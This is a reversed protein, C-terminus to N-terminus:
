RERLAGRLRDKLPRVLYDLVTREGTPMVVDAPMGATLHERVEDPVDEAIVQALFYPQKTAEDFLRDRSVTEVHGMILPLVNARFAPFRVEAAMGQSLRETDAPSVRAQIILSDHDPVVEVFPEGAKIVGGVTFVHLNQLTGTVPAVVDVRNLVDTAVNLKSRLDSIKSRVELIQGSVEEWFKQRTQRIQVGAESIGNEAKAQDATSRGIVGELRAKERQLAMYRSKQVLQRDLLSQVDALEEKIYDLQHNTADREQKLGTIEQKYQTIKSELLDIQGRLSARREQFQKTQDAIAEAVIRESRRKELEDPFAIHDSNDLEAHLRSEQALAFDLQNRQLEYSAKAQIPDIRFLVQGQEVHQGERVLIERVIGGELHQVTRKNSENAVVGAATVASDIKALASWGGLGLFTVIIIAYGLAAPQRWDPVATTHEDTGQGASGASPEIIPGQNRSVLEKM